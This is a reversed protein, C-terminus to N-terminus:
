WARRPVLTLLLTSKVDSCRNGFRFAIQRLAHSDRGSGSDAGQAVDLLEKVSTAVEVTNTGPQRQVALVISRAGDFWSATKNNQVSDLVQGLEGLHVAAGNRYAVMLNRFQAANQLQGNAQVTYARRQGWLTGTPLNVNESNIATAVEDIGIGRNALSTPDLQVRVAYKQAGYVQVQAVGPVMSIRQAMVTEGYEDLESLQMTKSTLTFYLIPSDAPNVKQYSPPLMGQPLSRLTQSIASQVDQAAADIDRDLTFQITISTSGLGSTSTMNDIGAITSFQKELPTAVASAMTEPSAGPLSANVSITPFDVSPLDSVPLRQYSMVGFFLIGIMVLTTMVPRRIFLETMSANGWQKGSHRNVAGPNGRSPASSPDTNGTNAAGGNPQTAGASDGDTAPTANAAAVTRKGNASKITIKSNPTLRSQGDVIVKDGMALGDAIVALTDLTRSVKVARQKATGAASDAVFVYTGQQGTLVAQSPVTLANPDVYLQLTTTVYQGPWLAGTRNDFRAKLLVTGTTSDVSNDVFSLVGQQPSATGESPRASVALAQGNGFYRQIDPFQSQPVSFRVLIPRLQNIVVLPTSSNAKVLNGQRVLLSGTKGSIPARITANAVNIRAQEVAAQDAQVTAAASAATAEAQDAQSRTVYDQQVLAAYRAADRRANAAQAQDRALQGRAQDLAAQYPRPDLQFLVQGASVEQGEAFTVRQLIGGVQAEVEATQLPEVVGNTTVMYPVNSRRVTAVVVPVVPNKPPAPKSCGAAVCAAALAALASVKRLSM